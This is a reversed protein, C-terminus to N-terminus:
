RLCGRYAGITGTVCIRRGSYTVEPDGFKPRDSGWILATFLQNPYARDLNIFTPIEAVGPPM